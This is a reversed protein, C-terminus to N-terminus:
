TLYFIATKWKNIGDNDLHDKQEHINQKFDKMLEVGAPCMFVYSQMWNDCIVILPRKLMTALVLCEYRMIDDVIIVEPEVGEPISTYYDYMAPDGENCPRFVYSISGDNQLQCTNYWEPNREIVYLKKCRKSLWVDGLGAGYMLIVKDSLDMAKIEDLAGHTFWPEILYNEPDIRQGFSLEM